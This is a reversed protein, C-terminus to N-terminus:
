VSKSHAACKLYFKHQTSACMWLCIAVIYWLRTEEKKAHSKFPCHSLLLCPRFIPTKCDFGHSSAVRLIYDHILLIKISNGYENSRKHFQSYMSPHKNLVYSRRHTQGRTWECLKVLFPDKPFSQGCPCYMLLSWRGEQCSPKVHWVYVSFPVKLAQIFCWLMHCFSKNKQPYQFLFHPNVFGELSM